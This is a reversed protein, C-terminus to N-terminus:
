VFVMLALFSRGVECGRVYYWCVIQPGWLMPKECIFGRFSHNNQVHLGPGPRSQLQHFSTDGSVSQKGSHIRKLFSVFVMLASFSRGVECGRVYYWCVMQPGWLMPKECRFGRFSHHEPCSDHLQVHSYNTFHITEAKAHKDNHM